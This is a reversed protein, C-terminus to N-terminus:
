RTRTLRTNRMAPHTVQDAIEELIEFGLADKMRGGTPLTTPPNARIFTTPGRSRPAPNWANAMADVATSAASRDIIKM